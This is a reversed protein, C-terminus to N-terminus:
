DGKRRLRSPLEFALYLLVVILAAIASTFYDIIFLYASFAIASLLAGIKFWDMKSLRETYVSWGQMENLVFNELSEAHTLPLDSPKINYEKRSLIQKLYIYRSEAYEQLDESLTIYYDKIEFFVENLITENESSGRELRAITTYKGKRPSRIILCGNDSEAKKGLNLNKRFRDILLIDRVKEMNAPIKLSFSIMDKKRATSGVIAIVIADQIIGGLIIYYGVAVVSIITPSPLTLLFGLIWAYAVIQIYLPPVIQKEPKLKTLLISLFIPVVFVLIALLVTVVLASTEETSPPYPMNSLLPSVPLLYNIFLELTLADFSGGLFVYVIWRLLGYNRSFQSRVQRLKEM